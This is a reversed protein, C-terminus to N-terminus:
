RAIKRRVFNGGALLGSGLLALSAPEPVTNITGSFGGSQFTATTAAAADLAALDQPGNVFGFTFTLNGVGGNALQSLVGSSTCGPGCLYTMNSLGINITFAGNNLGSDGITIFNINGFLVGAASLPSAGVQVATTPSTFNNAADMVIGGGVLFPNNNFFNLSDTVPTANAVIGNGFSFSLSGAGNGTVTVHQQFDSVFSISDAMASGAFLSVMMLTVVLALRKM